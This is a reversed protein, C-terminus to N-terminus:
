SNLRDYADVVERIKDIHILQCGVEIHDTDKKVIADYDNTLTVREVDCTLSEEVDEWLDEFTAYNNSLEDLDVCDDVEAKVLENYMERAEEVLNSLYFSLINSVADSEHFDYDVNLAKLLKNSNEDHGVAKQAYCEYDGWVLETQYTIDVYIGDALTFSETYTGIANTQWNYFEELKSKIEEKKM